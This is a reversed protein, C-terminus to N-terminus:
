LMGSRIGAGSGQALSRVERQGAEKRQGTFVFIPSVDCTTKLVLLTQIEFGKSSQRACPLELYIDPM